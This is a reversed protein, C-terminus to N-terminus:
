PVPLALSRRFARLCLGEKDRRSGAHHWSGQHGKAQLQMGGTKAEM